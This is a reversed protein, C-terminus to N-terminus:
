CNCGWRVNYTAIQCKQLYSKNKANRLPSNKGFSLSWFGDGLNQTGKHVVISTIYVKHNKYVEKAVVYLIQGITARCIAKHKRNKLQTILDSYSIISKNKAVRALIRCTDRFVSPPLTTTNKGIKVTTNKWSCM